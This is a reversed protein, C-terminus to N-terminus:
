WGGHLVFGAWFVPHPHNVMLGAQAESLAEAPGRGLQREHQFRAMFAATVQNDVPWRRVLVRSAGGALLAQVQRALEAHGPVVAADLGLLLVGPDVPGASARTSPATPPSLGRLALGLGPLEALLHRQALCTLGDQLAAFPLGALGAGPVLLVRRADALSDSLPSWVLGHLVQLRAQARKLLKPWDARPPGAGHRLADLQFRALRWAALVDHGRALRRFLQVAHARVVAAFLEEGQQGYVLLADAPALRAQLAALDFPEGAGGAATSAEHLCVLVRAAHNADPQEHHDRLARALPSTPCALADAHRKDPPPTTAATNVAAAAPVGPCAAARAPLDPAHPALVPPM